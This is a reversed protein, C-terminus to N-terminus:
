QVSSLFGTSTPSLFSTIIFFFPLGSVVKLNMLALLFPCQAHTHWMCEADPQSLSHLTQRLSHTKKGKGTCRLLLLHHLRDYCHMCHVPLPTHRLLSLDTSLDCTAACLSTYRTLILLPRPRPQHAGRRPLRRSAPLHCRYTITLILSLATVTM